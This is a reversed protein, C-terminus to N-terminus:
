PTTTTCAVSNFSIGTALGPEVWVYYVNPENPDPLPVLHRESSCTWGDPPELAVRLWGAEPSAGYVPLGGAPFVGNPDIVGSFDAFAARPDFTVVTGAPIGQMTFSSYPGIPVGRDVYNQDLASLGLFGPLSTSTGRFSCSRGEPGCVTRGWAGVELGGLHFCGDSGSSAPAVEPRFWDWAVGDELPPEPLDVRFGVASLCYWWSETAQPWALTPGARMWPVPSVPEAVCTSWEEGCGCVVGKAIGSTGLGQVWDSGSCALVTSSASVAGAGGVVAARSAGDVRVRDLEAEAPAQGSLNELTVGDGMAASCAADTDPAVGRILTSHLAITSAAAFVGAHRSDFISSREITVQSRASGPAFSRVRVGEGTCGDDSRGSTDRITTEDITAVADRIDVAADRAGEIVSGSVSLEAPVGVPVSREVSIGRGSPTGGPISGVFSDTITVVSGQAGLSTVDNGVIASQDITVVSQAFQEPGSTVGDHSWGSPYAAIGRAWGEAMTAPAGLNAPAPNLARTKQVASQRVTLESGSVFVGAEGTGTVLVRELTVRSPIMEPGDFADVGHYETDFIRVGSLRGEAGVFLFGGGPGTVSVGEIFISTIGSPVCVAAKTEYPLWEPIFPVCPYGETPLASVGRILVRGACGRISVGSQDIVVDEIYEGDHVILIPDVLGRVGELAETISHYPLALSGDGQQASSNRDVHRVRDQADVPPSPYDGVDCGIGTLGYAENCTEIGPYYLGTACEAPPLM